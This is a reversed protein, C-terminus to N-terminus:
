FRSGALSQAAHFLFLADRLLGRAGQGAHAGPARIDILPIRGEDPMARTTRPGFEVAGETTLEHM